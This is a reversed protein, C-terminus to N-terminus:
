GILVSGSPTVVTLGRDTIQPEELPNDRQIILVKIYVLNCQNIWVNM